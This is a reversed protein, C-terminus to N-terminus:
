DDARDIPWEDDDNDQLDQDCADVMSELFVKIQQVQDRSGGMWHLGFVGLLVNYRLEANTNLHGYEDQLYQRVADM